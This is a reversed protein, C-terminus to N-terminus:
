LRAGAFGATASLNQINPYRVFVQQAL